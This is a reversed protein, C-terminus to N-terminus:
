IQSELLIDRRIKSLTQPTINLFSAIDQLPLDSVIGPCRQLLLEYRERPTARYHDTYRAEFQSLLHNSLTIQFKLTKTNQNFFRNLQENSIRLVRCPTMAEITFHAVRNYLLDPYCGTIEGELSFWAVYEREDSIGNVVYKFCGQEVFAFWRAPEGEQELREGKKYTVVEGHQECYGYLQQLDISNSPINYRQEMVNYREDCLYANGSLEGSM